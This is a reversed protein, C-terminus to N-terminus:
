KAYENFVKLVAKGRDHNTLTDYGETDKFTQYHSSIIKMNKAEIDQGLKHKVYDTTFNYYLEDVLKKTRLQIKSKIELWRETIQMSKAESLVDRNSNLEKIVCIRIVASRSVGSSEACWSVKSQLEGHLESTRVVDLDKDVQSKAKVYDESIDMNLWDVDDNLDSIFHYLPRQGKLLSQLWEVNNDVSASCFRKKNHSTTEEVIQDLMRNTYRTVRFKIEKDSGKM